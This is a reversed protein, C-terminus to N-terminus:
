YENPFLNLFTDKVSCKLRWTNTAGALLQHSQEQNATAQHLPQLEQGFYYWEVPRTAQWHGRPGSNFKRGDWIFILTEFHNLNLKLPAIPTIQVWKIISFDAVTVRLLKVRFLFLTLQWGFNQFPNAILFNSPISRPDCCCVAFSQNPNEKWGLEM